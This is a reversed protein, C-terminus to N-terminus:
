KVVGGVVTSSTCLIENWPGFAGSYASKFVINIGLWAAIVILLGVLTNLFIRHARGINGPNGPSTVYLIGANTFLLAAVISVMFVFWNILNQTLVVLDCITCETDGWCPVLQFGTTTPPVPAATTPNTPPPPATTTTPTTPATVPPIINVILDVTDFGGDTDECYLTISYTGTPSGAPITPPSATFKLDKAPTETGDSCVAHNLAVFETGASHDQPNLVSITPDTNATAVSQVSVQITEVDVNGDSDTCTITVPFVGSTATSLPTATLGSGAPIMGDESDFCNTDSLPSYSSGVTTIYATATGISPTGALAVQVFAGWVLALCMVTLSARVFAYVRALVVSEM